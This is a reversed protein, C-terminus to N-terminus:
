RGGLIPHRFAGGGAAAAVRKVALTWGGRCGSSCISPVVLVVADLRVELVEDLRQIGAPPAGGRVAAGATPRRSIGATGTTMRASSDRLCTARRRRRETKGVEGHSRTCRFVLLSPWWSGGPAGDAMSSLDELNQQSGGQSDQLKEIRRQIKDIKDILFILSSASSRRAVAPAPPPSMMTRTRPAPAVFTPADGRPSSSSNSQELRVLELGGHLWPQAAHRRSADVENLPTPFATM